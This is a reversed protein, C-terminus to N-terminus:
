KGLLPSEVSRIMNDTKALSKRDNNLRNELQLIESSLRSKGATDSKAYKMRLSQLKKENDRIQRCLNERKQMLSKAEASKFDDFRTYEVGNKVFFSFEAEPKENEVSISRIANKLAPYDANEIWTDRISNVSALSYIGPNEPDYNERVENRKFIYITVSDPIQNRDTAWWGIGNLEDIALLYDDYPSNYPMGINQPQRYGGTAFDKSSMFIDYGGISGEGDSAYYITTGDPMAFPFTADGGNNLNEDLFSPADWKGDALRYTEALRLDGTSDPMSWIMRTGSQPVFVLASSDATMPRPLISADNLTGSEPSLKYHKFFAKKGVVISDFIQIKEVNNLMERVKQLRKYGMEANESLSPEDDDILDEFQAAYDAMKRYDMEELAIQALYRAADPIKQSRATELYKKAEDKKGTEYLCAGVWQNYNANKPSKKLYEQFTPLAQAFKGETYLKKAQALTTAASAAPAQLICAAALIFINLIRKM